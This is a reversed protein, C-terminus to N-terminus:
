ALQARLAAFGPLARVPALDPEGDVLNPARFGDGVARTLWDLGRDAHGAQAWSCATEFASQAKSARGDQHVLEGVQAAADYAKAYHLHAQLSAAAQPGAPGEGALLAAALEPARGAAALLTAPVLSSPGTPEALYARRFGALADGVDGRALDVSAMLFPDIAPPMPHRALARQASEAQGRRLADWALAEVQEADPGVREGPRAAGLGGALFGDTPTPVARLHTRRRSGRGSRRPPAGASDNGDGTPSEPLLAVSRDGKNAQVIEVLNLVGLILPLIILSYHNGWFWLFAAAAAGVSVYRATPRGVIAELVHGGDLPLIPLLNFLAWAISVFVLQDLFWYRDFSELAWSSDRLVYAPVGLVLMQTFPGALSVMIRAARSGIPASGYTLGVFGTLVVRPSQGIAKFAMAHGLEHVLVSVFVILAWQLLYKPKLNSGLLVVSIIFFLEVRVPVGLISFHPRGV